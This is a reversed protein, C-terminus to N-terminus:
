RAGGTATKPVFRQVVTPIPTATPTVVVEVIKPTAVIKATCAKEMSVQKESLDAHVLFLGALVPALILLLIGAVFKPISVIKFNM